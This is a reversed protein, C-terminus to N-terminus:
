GGLAASPLPAGSGCRRHGGHGTAKAPVHGGQEVLHEVTQGFQGSTVLRDRANADVGPAEVVSQEVGVAAQEGLRDGVPVSAGGGDDVLHVSFDVRLLQVPDVAQLEQRDRGQVLQGGLLLIRQPRLCTMRHENGVQEAVPQGALEAGFAGVRGGCTQEVHRGALPRGDQEVGESQRRAQKRPQDFRALRDTGEEGVDGAPGPHRRSGRNDSHPRVVGCRGHDADRGGARAKGVDRASGPRQDADFM